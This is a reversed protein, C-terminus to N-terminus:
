AGNELSEYAGATFRPLCICQFHLDASGTNRIRQGVGAPIAVVDGAGVARPVEDGVEVSGTGAIIVYWEDVTLRHLETTVGPEVMAEALSFAAIAPDNVLERIFCRERTWRERRENASNKRESMM